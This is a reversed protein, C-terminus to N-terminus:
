NKESRKNFKEIEKGMQIRLRELLYPDVVREDPDIGKIIKSILLNVKEKGIKKELLELYEADELGDRYLEWRISSLPMRSNDAPPYLFIGNGPKDRLYPDIEYYEPRWHNVSWWEIGQLNYKKVLWPLLRINLPQSSYSFHYNQYGWVEEGVSQRAKIVEYDFYKKLLPVTWVDVLGYLEKKPSTTIYIKLGPAHKRIIKAIRILKDLDKQQPEDWPQIYAKNLWGKEKLHASLQYIYDGYYTEFDKSSIPIKDLWKEHTVGANNGFFFPIFFGEYKLDNILYGAVKDFDRFDVLIKNKKEDFVVKPGPMVYGGNFVRHDKLNEYLLRLETKEVMDKKWWIRGVTKISSEAPLTFDFVHINIKVKENNLKTYLVHNGAKTEPFTKVSIWFIGNESKKLKQPKCDYLIDPISLKESSVFGVTNCFVKLGKSKPLHTIKVKTDTKPTIILQFSEVENKALYIQIERFDKQKPKEDRMVREGSLAWWLQYDTSNRIVSGFAETKSAYNFFIVDATLILLILLLNKM